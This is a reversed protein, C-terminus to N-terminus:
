PLSPLHQASYANPRRKTTVSPNKPKSAQWVIVGRARERKGDFVCMRESGRVWGENEEEKRERKRGALGESKKENVADTHSPSHCPHGARIQNSLPETM